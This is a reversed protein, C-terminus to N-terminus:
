EHPHHLAPLAPLVGQPLHGDRQVQVGGQAEALSVYSDPPDISTEPHLNHLCPRSHTRTLAAHIITAASQYRELSAAADKLEREIGMM